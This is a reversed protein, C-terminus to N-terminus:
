WCGSKEVIKLRTARHYAMCRLDHKDNVHPINTHSPLNKKNPKSLTEIEKDIVVLRTEILM